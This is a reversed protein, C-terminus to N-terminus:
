ESCRQDLSEETAFRQEPRSAAVSPKASSLGVFIRSLRLDSRRLRCDEALNAAAKWDLLLHTVGFPLSASSISPNLRYFRCHPSCTATSHREFLELFKSAILLAAPPRRPVQSFFPSFLQLSSSCGSPRAPISNTTGVQYSTRSTAGLRNGHTKAIDLCRRRRALSSVKIDRERDLDEFANFLHACQFLAENRLKAVRWGNKWKTKSEVAM